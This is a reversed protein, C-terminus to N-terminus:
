RDATFCRPRNHPQWFAQGPAWTMYFNGRSSVAVYDGTPSRNISSFNGEYYSAGSIGAASHEVFKAQRMVQAQCAPGACEPSPCTKHGSSDRPKWLPYRRIRLCRTCVASCVYGLLDGLESARSCQLARSSGEPRM